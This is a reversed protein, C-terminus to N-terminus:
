EEKHVENFHRRIVADDDDGWIDSPQDATYFIGCISCHYQPVNTVRMSVFPLNDRYFTQM